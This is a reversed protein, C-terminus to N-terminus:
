DGQQARIIVINSVDVEESKIQHKRACGRLVSKIYKETGRLSPSALIGIGANKMRLTLHSYNQRSLLM